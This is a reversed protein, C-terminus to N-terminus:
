FFFFERSTPLCRVMWNLGPVASSAQLVDVLKGAWPGAQANSSPPSSPQTSSPRWAPVVATATTSLTAWGLAVCYLTDVEVSAVVGGCPRPWRQSAPQKQRSFRHPFQRVTPVYRRVPLTTSPLRLLAETAM